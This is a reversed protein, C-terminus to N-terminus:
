SSPRLLGLVPCRADVKEYLTKLQGENIEELVVGVAKIEKEQEFYHIYYVWKHYM